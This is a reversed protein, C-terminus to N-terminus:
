LGIEDGWRMDNLEPFTDYIFNMLHTASFDGFTKVVATARLYQEKHSESEALGEIFKQGLCTSEVIVTKGETYVNLLGKAKLLSIWRRYRGDWPGYRFRIMKSEITDKEHNKIEIDFQSLSKGEKEIAVSLCNPYRLLFDMKALKTIGKIKKKGKWKGSIAVLMLVRMMHLDDSLEAQAAKRALLLSM